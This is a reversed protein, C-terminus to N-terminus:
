DFKSSVISAMRVERCTVVRVYVEFLYSSDYPIRKYLRHVGLQLMIRDEILCLFFVFVSLNLKSHQFISHDIHDNSPLSETYV